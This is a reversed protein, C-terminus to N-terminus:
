FQDCDVLEFKQEMTRLWDDAELPEEAKRFIPPHTETFQHYINEDDNRRGQNGRQANQNNQAMERMFRTNETTANVLAAIADTLTPPIPPPNPVNDGGTSTTARTQPM